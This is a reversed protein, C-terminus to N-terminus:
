GYKRTAFINKKGFVPLPVSVATNRKTNKIESDFDSVVAPRQGKKNAPGYSDVVTRQRPAPMPRWSGLNHALM